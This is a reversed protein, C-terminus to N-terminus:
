ENKGRKLNNFRKELKKSLFPHITKKTYFDSRAAMCILCSLTRAMKGRAKIPLRQIYSHKFIIGYKPTKKRAPDSRYAGKIQIGGAPTQAINELTGYLFGMNYLYTYYELAQIKGSVLKKAFNSREANKHHEMTLERLKLM